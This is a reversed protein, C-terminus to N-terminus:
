WWKSSLPQGSGRTMTRNQIMARTSTSMPREVSFIRHCPLPRQNDAQPRCSIGTQFGEMPAYGDRDAVRPRIRGVEIRRPGFEGVRLKELRRRHIEIVEITGDDAWADSEIMTEGPPRPVRIEFDQSVDVQEQAEGSRRDNGDRAGIALTRHCRHDPLEEVAPRPAHTDAPVEANRREVQEVQM